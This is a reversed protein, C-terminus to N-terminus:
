ETFRWGWLGRHRTYLRVSHDQEGSIIQRGDPSFAISLVPSSRTGVRTILKCSGVDWLCITQDDSASALRSGDPSFVVAELLSDYGAPTAQGVVRARILVGVDPLGIFTPGACTALEDHMQVIPGIVHRIELELLTV